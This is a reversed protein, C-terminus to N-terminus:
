VSLRTVDRPDNVVKLIADDNLTITTQGKYSYTHGHARPFMVWDGVKCYPGTLSYREDQYASKSLKVVLGVFNSIKNKNNNEDAFQDTMLISSNAYTEPAYPVYVRILVQWGQPEDGQYKAIEEDLNYNEFDIGQDTLEGVKNSM